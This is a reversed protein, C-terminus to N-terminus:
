LFRYGQANGQPERALELLQITDLLQGPAVRHHKDLRPPRPLLVSQDGWLGANLVEPVGGQLNDVILHCKPQPREGM